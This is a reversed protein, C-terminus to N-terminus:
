QPQNIKEISNNEGNESKNFLNETILYGFVVVILGAIITIVFKIFRTRREKEINRKIYEQM